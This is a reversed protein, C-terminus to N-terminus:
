SPSGSRDLNDGQHYLSVAMDLPDRTVVAYTARVDLVVQGDLPTHTKVVRQGPQAELRAFLDDEPITVLGGGAVPRGAARVAGAHRPPAPPPDAPGM